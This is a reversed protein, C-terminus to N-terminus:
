SNLLKKWSIFAFVLLEGVAGLEGIDGYLVGQKEDLQAVVQGWPDVLASHGWAVYGAAPGRAPGVLAVWLQLDTARARGLLEWHRPGTTM